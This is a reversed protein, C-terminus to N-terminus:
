LNETQKWPMLLNNLPIVRKEEGYSQYLKLITVFMAGSLKNSM